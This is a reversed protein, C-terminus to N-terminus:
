IVNFTGINSMVFTLCMVLKPFLALAEISKYEMNWFFVTCPLLRPEASPSQASVPAM